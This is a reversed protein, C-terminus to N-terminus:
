FFRWFARCFFCFGCKKVLFCRRLGAKKSCDVQNAGSLDYLLDQKVCLTM